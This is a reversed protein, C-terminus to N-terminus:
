MGETYTARLLDLLRHQPTVSGMPTRVYSWVIREVAERTLGSDAELAAPIPEQIRTPERLLTEVIWGGGPTVLDGVWDLPARVVANDDADEGCPDCSPAFKGIGAMSGLEGTERDFTAWGHTAPSGCTSCVKAPPLMEWSTLTRKKIQKIAEPSYLADDLDKEIESWDRDPYNDLIDSMVHSLAHESLPNEVDDISLFSM